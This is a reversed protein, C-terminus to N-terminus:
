IQKFTTFEASKKRGLGKRGEGNRGFSFSEQPTPRQLFDQCKRILSHCRLQMSFSITAKRNWAVKQGQVEAVQFFLFVLLLCFFHGWAERRSTKGREKIHIQSNTRIRRQLPYKFSHLRSSFGYGNWVWWCRSRQNQRQLDLRFCQRCSLFAM